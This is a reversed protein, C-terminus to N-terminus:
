LQTTPLPLLRLAQEQYQPASYVSSSLQLQWLLLLNATPLQSSGGALAEALRLNIQEQGREIAQRLEDLPAGVFLQQSGEPMLARMRNLLDVPLSRVPYPLVTGHGLFPDREIQRLWAKDQETLDNLLLNGNDLISNWSHESAYAAGRPVTEDNGEADRQSHLLEEVLPAVQVYLEQSARSLGIRATHARLSECRFVQFLSGCKRYYDATPSDPSVQLCEPAAGKLYTELIRSSPSIDYRAAGNKTIWMSDTLWVAGHSEYFEFGGDSRPRVGRLAIVDGARPVEGHNVRQCQHALAQTFVEANATFITDVVSAARLAHAWCNTNQDSSDIMKWFTQALYPTLVENLRVECWGSELTRRALPAQRFEPEDIQRVAVLADIVRASETGDECNRARLLVGGGPSRIVAIGERAYERETYFFDPELSMLFPSLGSHTAFLLSSFWSLGITLYVVFISVLRLM